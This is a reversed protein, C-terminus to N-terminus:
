PADPSPNEELRKKFLLLVAGLGIGLMTPLVDIKGILIYGSAVYGVGFILLGSAYALLRSRELRQLILIVGVALLTPFVLVLSVKLKTEYQWNVTWVLSILLILFIFVFLISTEEEAKMSGGGKLALFGDEKM